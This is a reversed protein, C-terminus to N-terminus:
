RFLKRLRNEDVIQRLAAEKTVNKEEAAQEVLEDLWESRLEAAAKHINRLSAWAEQLQRFITNKPQMTMPLDNNKAFKITARSLAVNNHMSRLQTRWFRVIEASKTLAPSRAYGVNRRRVKNIGARMADNVDNCIKEYEEIFKSNTQITGLKDLRFEVRTAILHKEVTANYKNM